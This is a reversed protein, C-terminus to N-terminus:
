RSGVGCGIWLIESTPPGGCVVRFGLRFHHEIEPWVLDAVVCSKICSSSRVIILIYLEAGRGRHVKERM